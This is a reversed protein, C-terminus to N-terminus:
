IKYIMIGTLPYSIKVIEYGSKYRNSNLATEIAKLEEKLEKQELDKELLSELKIITKTLPCNNKYKNILANFYLEAFDTNLMYEKDIKLTSEKIECVRKDDNNEIM